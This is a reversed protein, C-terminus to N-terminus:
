RRKKMSADVMMDPLGTQDNEGRLTSETVFGDLVQRLTSLEASLDANLDSDAVKQCLFRAAELKATADKPVMLNYLSMPHSRGVSSHPRVELSWRPADLAAAIADLTEARGAGPEAKELRARLDKNEAAVKQLNPRIPM